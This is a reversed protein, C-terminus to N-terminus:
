LIRGVIISSIGTQKTWIESYAHQNLQYESKIAAIQGDFEGGQIRGYMRTVGYADFGPAQVAAFAADLTITTKEM